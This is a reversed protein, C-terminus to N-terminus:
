GQDKAATQAKTGKGKPQEAVPVEEIVLASPYRNLEAIQVVSSALRQLKDHSDVLVVAQCGKDSACHRLFLGDVEPFSVDRPMLNTVQVKLPYKAEAFVQAVLTKAEKGTLSPAGLEVKRTTM